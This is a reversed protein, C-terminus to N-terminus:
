YQLLPGHQLLRARRTINSIPKPKLRTNESQDQKMVILYKRCKKLAVPTFRSTNIVSNAPPELALDQHGVDAIAAILLCLVHQGRAEPLEQDVIDFLQLHEHHAVLLDAPGAHKRQRWCSQRRRRPQTSGTGRPAPDAPSFATRDHHSM